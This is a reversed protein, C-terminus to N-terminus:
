AVLEAGDHKHPGGAQRWEEPTRDQKASNCSFCAVALNEASHAGGRALPVVHDLTRKLSALDRACYACHTASLLISRAEKRTLTIVCNRERAKRAHRQLRRYEPNRKDWDRKTTKLRVKNEKEWERKTERAKASRQREREATRRRRKSCETCRVCHTSSSAGCDACIWRRVSARRTRQEKARQQCERYCAVCQSYRQGGPCAVFRVNGPAKAHGNKCTARPGTAVKRDRRKEPPVPVYKPRQRPGILKVRGRKKPALHLAKAYNCVTAKSVGLAKAIAGAPTVTDWMERIRQLTADATKASM